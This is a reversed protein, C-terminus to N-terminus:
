PRRTYEFEQKAIQDVRPPKDPANRQLAQLGTMEDVSVTRTGDAAHKASAERCTECVAIVQQEFVVQDKETTNLWMKRRHSQLVADKLYRGVQSVSINSIISRKIVEDRLENHTWQTIPRGSKEPPECAVALM